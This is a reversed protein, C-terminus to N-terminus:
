PQWVVRFGIGENKFNRERMYRMASRCRKPESFWSGGREVRLLDDGGTTWASGDTPAGEYSEHWHDACWEWVNGHMDYLGFTNAIKFSGVETAQSRFEGTPGSGYVYTGNYNALDTTITPGVHFPTTTGGRCAYEWEAESPLRYESKTHNSLRQCFEVADDWDVNEVPRNDGKFIAPDATLDRSVKPLAAVAKWQAQTVSYKGMLFPPVNVDRQPGENTQRQPESNPSGMKFTGGPVAVLDLVFKSGQSWRVGKVQSQQREVAQGQLDVTVIEISFFAQYHFFSSSASTIEQDITEAIRRINESARGDNSPRIVLATLVYERNEGRIIATDGLVSRIDGTKNAVSAPQYVSNPILSRNATREMIEFMRLRSDPSLLHGDAILSLLLSLDKASTKNTGDLDPLPNNLITSTLGWESFIKNLNDIGGLLDVILNTATNDSNIVMRLAVEAAGYKTGVAENRMTGSGGVIFREQLIVSQNLQLVNVDVARFFAALIPVSITAASAVAESGAYDVYDRSNLDVWFVHSTLGPALTELQAIMEKLLTNEENLVVSNISTSLPQPQDTVEKSYTSRHTLVKNILITGALGAVGWGTWQLWRRRTMQPLRQLQQRLEEPVVLEVGAIEVRDRGSGSLQLFHGLATQPEGQTLKAMGHAYHKLAKGDGEPLPLRELLAAMRRWEDGDTGPVTMLNRALDHLLKPSQTQAMAMWRQAQALDRLDPDDSHLQAVQHYSLLFDALEQLRKPGFRPDAKLQSLLSTRIDTKIEYLDFGVEDCVPALLVDAVAVWPTHLPQGHIDCRFHAWLRYLLDPTLAMPFAAHYALDLHPQGFKELFSTLQQDALSVTM